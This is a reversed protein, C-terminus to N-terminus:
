AVSAHYCNFSNCHNLHSFPVFWQTSCESDHDYCEYWEEIIRLCELTISLAIRWKTQVNNMAHIGGALFEVSYTNLYLKGHFVAVALTPPIVCFMESLCAELLLIIPYTNSCCSYIFTYTLIGLSLVHLKCSCCNRSWKSSLQLWELWNSTM